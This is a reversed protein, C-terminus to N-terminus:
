YTMVLPEATGRFPAGRGRHQTGDGTGSSGEIIPPQVQQRTSPGYEEITYTDGDDSEGQAEEEEEVQAIGDSPYGVFM